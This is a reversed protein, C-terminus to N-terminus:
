PNTQRACTNVGFLTYLPCFRLVATLLFVGGLIVLVLGVSGTVYNGFYLFAFFASLLVRVWRDAVGM